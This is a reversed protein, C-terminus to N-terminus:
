NGQVADRDHRTGPRKSVNESDFKSAIKNFFDLEQEESSCDNIGSHQTELYLVCKDIDEVYM